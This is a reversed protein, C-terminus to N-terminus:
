SLTLMFQYSIAAATTAAMLRAFRSDVEYIVPFLLQVFFPIDRQHPNKAYVYSQSRDGWHGRSVPVACRRFPKRRRWSLESKGRGTFLLGLM